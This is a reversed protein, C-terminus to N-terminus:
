AQKDESGGHARRYEEWKEQKQDLWEQNRLASATQTDRQRAAVALRQHAREIEKRWVWLRIGGSKVAISVGERQSLYASAAKGARGDMRAGPVFCAGWWVLSLGIGFLFYPQRLLVAVLIFGFGVPFIGLAGIRYWRVGRYALVTAEEGVLAAIQDHKTM